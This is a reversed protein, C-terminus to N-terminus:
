PDVWGTTQSGTTIPALVWCHGDNKTYWMDGLQSGSRPLNAASPLEGKYLTNLIRGDPMRDNEYTGITRVHILQARPASAVAVPSPPRVEPLPPPPTPAVVPIAGIGAPSLEQRPKPLAMLIAGLLVGILLYGLVVPPKQQQPNPRAPSFFRETKPLVTDFRDTQM